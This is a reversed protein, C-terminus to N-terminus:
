IRFSVKWLDNIWISPPELRTTAQHLQEIGQQLCRVPLVIYYSRIHISSLQHRSSIEAQLKDPHRAATAHRAPSSNCISTDMPGVGPLFTSQWFMYISYIKWRNTFTIKYMVEIPRVQPSKIIWFMDMWPCWDAEDVEIAIVVPAVDRTRPVQHKVGRPSWTNPGDQWPSLLNALATTLEALKGSFTLTQASNSCTPEPVLPLSM